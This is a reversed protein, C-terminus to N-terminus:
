FNRAEFYIPSHAIDMNRRAINNLYQTDAPYGIEVQLCQHPRTSYPSPLGGSFNCNPTWPVYVTQTQGPALHAIVATGVHIFPPASAGLNYLTFEVRVNDAPSSGASRVMALLRDSVGCVPDHAPGV